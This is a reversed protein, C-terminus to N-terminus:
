ETKNSNRPTLYVSNWKERFFFFEKLNEWSTGLDFKFANPNKSRNIAENQTHNNLLGKIQELFIMLEYFFTTVHYILLCTIVPNTKWFYPISKDLPLIKPANPDAALYTSITYSFTVQLTLITFVFILFPVHNESGICNNVWICHHDMRLICRGCQRCHKSRLPRKVMCTCCIIEPVNEKEIAENLEELQFTERPIIGPNGFVLYYHDIALIFNASIFCITTMPLLTHTVPFIYLFYFFACIVYSIWFWFSWFPNRVQTANPYISFKRITGVFFILLAPAAFWFPLFAVTTLFVIHFLVPVFMWPWERSNRKFKGFSGRSGSYEGENQISIENSNRAIRFRTFWSKQKKLFYKIKKACDEHGSEMATIIADKGSKDKINPDAGFHLLVDIAEKQGGRCAWHLPMMGADDPVDVNTIWNRLLRIGDSSGKFAAWHLANHGENDKTLIGKGDLLHCIYYACLTKQNQISLMLATYGQSDSRSIDAGEKILYKLITIHGGM